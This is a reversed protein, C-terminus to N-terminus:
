SSMPISWHLNEWGFIYNVVLSGVRMMSLPESTSAVLWPPFLLLSFKFGLIIWCKMIGVMLKGVAVISGSIFFSLFDHGLNRRRGSRGEPLGSLQCYGFSSHPIFPTFLGLAEAKLQWASDTESLPDSDHGLSSCGQVALTWPGTDGTRSRRSLFGGWGAEGGLFWAVLPPWTWGDADSLTLCVQVSSFTVTLLWTVLPICFALRAASNLPFAGMQDTCIAKEVLRESCTIGRNCVCGRAGHVLSFGQGFDFRALASWFIFCHKLQPLSCNVACSDLKLEKRAEGTLRWNSQPLRIPHWM